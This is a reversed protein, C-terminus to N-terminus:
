NEHNIVKTVDQESWNVLKLKFVSYHDTDHQIIVSGVDAHVRGNRTQITLTHKGKHVEGDEIPKNQPVIMDQFWTPMDAVPGTYFFARKVPLDMKYEQDDIKVSVQVM